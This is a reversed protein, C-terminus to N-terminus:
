NSLHGQRGRGGRGGRRGRGGHSRGRGRGRHQENRSTGNTEEESQLGFHNALQQFVEVPPLSELFQQQFFQRNMQDQRLQLQQHQQLQQQRLQLQQQEQQQREQWETRTMGNCKGNNDIDYGIYKVLRKAGGHNDVNKKQEPKKQIQSKPKLKVIISELILNRIGVTGYVERCQPCSQLKQKCKPCIVHGKSCQYIHAGNLGLEEFCCICELDEDLFIKM